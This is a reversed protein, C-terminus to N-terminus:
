KTTNCIVSQIGIKKDNPIHKADKLVSAPLTNAVNVFMSSLPLLVRVLWSLIIFDYRFSISKVETVHIHNPDSFDLMYWFVIM